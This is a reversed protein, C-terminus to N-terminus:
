AGTALVAALVAGSLTVMVGLLWLFRTTASERITRVDARVDNLEEHVLTIVRWIAEHEGNMGVPASPPKRRPPETGMSVRLAM